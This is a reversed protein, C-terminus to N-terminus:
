ENHNEKEPQAPAILKHCYCAGNRAVDHRCMWDQRVDGDGHRDLLPRSHLAWSVLNAWCTGPVKDLWSAATWRVRNQWRRKTAYDISV